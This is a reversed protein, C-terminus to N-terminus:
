VCHAKKGSLTKVSELLKLQVKKYGAPIPIDQRYRYILILWVTVIPSSCLSCLQPSVVLRAGDPRVDSFHLAAYLAALCGRFVVLLADYLHVDPKM